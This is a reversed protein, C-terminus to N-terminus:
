RNWNHRDKLVWKKFHLNKGLVVRVRGKGLIQGM